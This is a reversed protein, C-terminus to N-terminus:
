KSVWRFRHQPDISLLRRPVDVELEPQTPPHTPAPKCAGAETQSLHCVACAVEINPKCGPTILASAM